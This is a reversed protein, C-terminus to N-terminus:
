VCDVGFNALVENLDTFNVVGDGNVDGALGEGSQGFSALVANLDTFNVINDGNSDGPCEVPDVGLNGQAWDVAEAFDVPSADNDFVLWFPESPGVGASSSQLRLQLLYVGPPADFGLAYTLHRHWVGGSQVPISFGQVTTDATTPTLVPGLSLFSIGLTEGSITDFNVGDWERLADLISFSLSSGSPFTAPFCDFGPEDTIGPVLEGMVSDFVRRPQPSGSVIANTVISGTDTTLIIDGTHRLGGASVPLASLAAAFMMSLVCGTRM